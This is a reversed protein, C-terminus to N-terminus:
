GGDERKSLADAERTAIDRLQEFCGAVAPDDTGRMLEAYGNAFKAIKEFNRKAREGDSMAEAQGRLKEIAARNLNEAEALSPDARDAGEGEGTQPLLARRLYTAAARMDALREDGTPDYLCGLASQAAEILAAVERCDEESPGVQSPTSDNYIEMAYQRWQDASLM